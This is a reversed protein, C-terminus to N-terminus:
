PLEIYVICMVNYKICDSLDNAIMCTIVLRTNVSQECLRNYKCQSLNKYLGSKSSERNLLNKEGFLQSLSNAIFYYFFICYKCTKKLDHAMKCLIEFYNRLHLYLFIIDNISNLRIKFYQIM